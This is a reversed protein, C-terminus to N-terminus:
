GWLGMGWGKTLPLDDILSAATDLTDDIAALDSLDEDDLDQHLADGILPLSLPFAEPLTPADPQDSDSANLALMQDSQEGSSTSYDDVNQASSQSTQNSSNGSGGTILASMDAPILPDGSDGNNALDLLQSGAQASLDLAAGDDQQDDDGIDLDATQTSEADASANVDSDSADNPQEGPEGSVGNLLSTISGTITSATGSLEAVTSPAALPADAAENLLDATTVFIDPVTADEGQDGIDSLATQIADANDDGGSFAGEFLSDLDSQALSGIIPTDNLSGMIPVDGDAALLNNVPGTLDTVGSLIDATTVSVTTVTDATQDDPASLFPQIGDAATAASAFADDFLADLNGPALDAIQGAGGFTDALSAMIPMDTMPPLLDDVTGGLGAVAAAPDGAMDAVDDLLDSTTFALTAMADGAQDGVASLVPQVADTIGDVADIAGTLIADTNAFATEFLADANDPILDGVISLGDLTDTLSAIIPSDIVPAFLGDVTSLAMDGVDGVLGLTEHGLQDLLDTVISTDLSLDLALTLDLLDLVTDTLGDALDPLSLDPNIVSIGPLDPEPLPVVHSDPTGPSAPVASQPSASPQAGGSNLPITAGLSAADGDTQSGAEPLNEAPPKGSLEFRGPEGAAEAAGQANEGTFGAVSAIDGVNGAQDDAIDAEGSLAEEDIAAQASSGFLKEAIAIQALLFAWTLFSWLKRERQLQLPDRLSEAERASPKRDIIARMQM